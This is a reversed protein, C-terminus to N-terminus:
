EHRNFKEKEAERNIDELPLVVKILKKRITSTAM